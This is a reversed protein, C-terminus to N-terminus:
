MDKTASVEHMLLVGDDTLPLRVVRRARESRLRAIQSELLRALPVAVRRVDESTIPRALPPAIPPAVLHTM